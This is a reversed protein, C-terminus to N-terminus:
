ANLDEPSGTSTELDETGFLTMLDGYEAGSLNLTAYETIYVGTANHTLIIQTVQVNDDADVGQILYKATGYQNSAFVEMTQQSTGTFSTAGPYISFGTAGLGGTAGTIGTAGQDGTVGSAGDVGQQGAEGTPGSAGDIGSAGDVGQTGTEGTVGSAGDSGSAGIIGTAGSAGLIGTAGTLGTAGSAGIWGIAGDLNVIWGSVGTASGVSKTVTFDIYTGDTATIDGVMYNNFDKAM